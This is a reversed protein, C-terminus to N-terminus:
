DIDPAILDRKAGAYHKYIIEASNGVLKAVDKADMGADLCFTIYSHRM